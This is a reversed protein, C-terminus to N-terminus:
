QPRKASPSFCCNHTQPFSFSQLFDQLHLLLWICLHLHPFLSEGLKFICYNCSFPKAFFRRKEKNEINWVINKSMDQREMQYRRKKWDPVSDNWEKIPIIDEKKGKGERNKNMAGHRMKKYIWYEWGTDLPLYSVGLHLNCLKRHSSFLVFCNGCWKKTPDMAEAALGQLSRLRFSFGGSLRWGSLM